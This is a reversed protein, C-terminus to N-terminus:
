LNRKHPPVYTGKTVSSTTPPISSTQPQRRESEVNSKDSTPRRWNDPTTDVYERRPEKKSKWNQDEDCALPKREPRDERDRRGAMRDERPVRSSNGDYRGRNSYTDYRAGGYINALNKDVPTQLDAFNISITKRKTISAMTNNPKHEELDKEIEQALSISPFSADSTIDIKVKANRSGPPRYPNSSPTNIVPTEIVPPQPIIGWGKTTVPVDEKKEESETHEIITAEDYNTISLGQPIIESLDEEPIPQIYEDDIGEVSELIEEEIKKNSKELESYVEDLSIIHKKAKDKNKKSKKKFLISADESM